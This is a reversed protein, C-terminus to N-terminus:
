SDDGPSERGGNFIQHSDTWYNELKYRVSGCVSLCVSLCVLIFIYLLSASHVRANCLNITHMMELRPKMCIEHMTTSHISRAAGQFAQITALDSWPGHGHKARTKLLLLSSFLPGKPGRGSGTSLVPLLGFTTSPGHKACALVGPSRLRGICRCHANRSPFNPKEVIKTPLEPRM